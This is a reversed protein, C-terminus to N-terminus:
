SSARLKNVALRDVWHSMMLLLGVILLGLVSRWAPLIRTDPFILDGADLGGFCILYLDIALPYALLIAVWAMSIAAARLMRWPLKSLM